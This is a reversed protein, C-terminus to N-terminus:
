VRSAVMASCGGGESVLMGAKHIREMIGSSAYSGIPAKNSGAGGKSSETTQLLPRRAPPSFPPQSPQPESQPRPPSPSPSPAAAASSSANDPQWRVLLQKGVGIGTLWTSLQQLEGESLVDGVTRGEPMVESCPLMSQSFVQDLVHCLPLLQQSRNHISHSL